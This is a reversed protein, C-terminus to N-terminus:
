KLHFLHTEFSVFLLSFFDLSHSIWNKICYHTLCQRSKTDEENFFHGCVKLSSNKKVQDNRSIFQLSWHEFCTIKPWNREDLHSKFKISSISEFFGGERTWDGSDPSRVTNLSKTAGINSQYIQFIFMKNIVIYNYIEFFSFYLKSLLM